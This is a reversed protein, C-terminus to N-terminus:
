KETRFKLENWLLMGGQLNFVQDFGNQKALASARASRGGSRCVFVIPRDKPLEFLRAPLTDLVILKAGPIHGLDGKYEDMGRVDILAVQDTLVDPIKAMIDNFETADIDTVGPISPHPHASKFQVPVKSEMTKSNVTHKSANSNSAKASSLVEDLKQNLEPMRIRAYTKGVVKGTPDFVLTTPVVTPWDPVLEAMFKEPDGKVRYTTFDVGLGKLISLAEANDGDPEGMVLVLDVGAKKRERHIQLLEPMEAKCPQCWTAWLNFVTAKVGPRQMQAKLESATIAKLKASNAGHANLAALLVLAAVPLAKCFAAGFVRLTAGTTQQTIKCM